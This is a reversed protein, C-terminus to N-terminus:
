SCHLFLYLKEDERLSTWSEAAQRKCHDDSVSLWCNSKEHPIIEPLWHLTNSCYAQPQSVATTSVSKCPIVPYCLTSM